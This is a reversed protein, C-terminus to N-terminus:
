FINGIDIDILSKAVNEEVLKITEFKRNLVKILKSNIKTYSIFNPDLKKEKQMHSDLKGLVM